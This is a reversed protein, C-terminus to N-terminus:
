RSRSALSHMVGIKKSLEFASLERPNGGNTEHDLLHQGKFEFLRNIDSTATNLQSQLKTIEAKLIDTEDISGDPKTVIPRNAIEAEVEYRVQELIHPLLEDRIAIRLDHDNKTIQDQLIANAQELDSVRNTLAELMSLVELNFDAQALSTTM